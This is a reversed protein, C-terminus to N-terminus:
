RMLRWVIVPIGILVFILVSFIVFGETGASSSMMLFFLVLGGLTTILPMRFMGALFLLAIIAIIVFLAINGAFVSIFWYQLDLPLNFTM